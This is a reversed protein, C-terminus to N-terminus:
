RHDITFTRSYFNGASVETAIPDLDPLGKQPGKGTGRLNGGIPVPREASATLKRHQKKISRIENLIQKGLEKRKADSAASYDGYLRELKTFRQSAALLYFTEMGLQEDLEFWRDGQPIYYRRAIEYDKEFQDLTYPFLLYWNDEGTCYFLYVFCKSQLELLMKIRDGTKLATDRTISVVRRDGEPGVMAGFAWHFRIRNEGKEEAYLTRCPAWLLLFLALLLPLLIWGHRKM